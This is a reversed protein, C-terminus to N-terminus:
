MVEMVRIAEWAEKLETVTEAGLFSALMLITEM